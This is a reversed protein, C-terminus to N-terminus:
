KKTDPPIGSNDGLDGFVNTFMSKKLNDAPIGQSNAHLGGYIVKSNKIKFKKFNELM